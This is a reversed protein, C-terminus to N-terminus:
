WNRKPKSTGKKTRKVVPNYKKATAARSLKATKKKKFIPLNWNKLNTTAEAAFVEPALGVLISALVLALLSKKM